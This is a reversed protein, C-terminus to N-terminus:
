QAYVGMDVVRHVYATVGPTGVTTAFPTAPSALEQDVTYRQIGDLMAQSVQSPWEDPTAPPFRRQRAGVDGFSAVMEGAGQKDVYELIPEPLLDLSTSWPSVIADDVPIFGTDSEAANTSFTLDWAFGVSVVSVATIRKRVFTRTASDYLAITKSVTPATIPSGSIVGTRVRFSTATIAAANDVLTPETTWVPWPSLDKWGDVSDRWTLQVVPKVNHDLLSAVMVGDDAPMLDKITTEVLTRQAGNPVRSGGVVDPRMTFAIGYTGPGKIAPYVFAKQIALGPIEEVAHMVEAANGSAPPYQYYSDLRAAYEANTEEERGGTLGSGNSNEFVTANTSVGSPTSVWQMVSGAELNTSPGTGIGRVPIPVGTSYVGTVLVEYKAGARTKLAEGETISAGGDITDCLVYGSAGSAPKRPKGRRLGEKNLEETTATSNRTGDAIQGADFYVPLFADAVNSADIFPQSTKSTDATPVRSQYDRLFDDRIKDRTKLVFKGDLKDIPM